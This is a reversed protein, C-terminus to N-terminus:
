EINTAILYTNELAKGSFINSDVCLKTYQEIYILQNNINLELSGSLCTICKVHLKEKTEIITDKPLYYFTVIENPKTINKLKKYKIREDDNCNDWNTFSRIIIGDEIEHIVPIQKFLETKKIDILKNVRDFIEKRNM